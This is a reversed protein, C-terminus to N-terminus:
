TSRSAPRRFWPALEAGRGKWRIRAMALLTMMVFIILLGVSAKGIGVAHKPLISFDGYVFEIHV